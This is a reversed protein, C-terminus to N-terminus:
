PRTNPPLADTGDRAIASRLSDARSGTAEAMQRALGTLVASQEPRGRAQQIATRVVGPYSFRQFIAVLDALAEHFALVDPNTPLTFHARLGDLLAHTVEHTVIDHSLCTFTTGGPLNRGRADRDAPFYGFNLTGDQPDYCANKEEFAHPRVRLRVRGDDDPERFFGWALDRGLAKRFAAYALNCVAYVMQQHFQPDSPSPSRGSELLVRPNDLDVVQLHLGDQTTFTEEVAFLHGKPGPALPEYPVNVRAVAGERRSASADLTYIHLPRYIPDGRRREYPRAQMARPVGEGICIRTADLPAESSPAEPEPSVGRSQAMAASAEPTSPSAPTPEDM